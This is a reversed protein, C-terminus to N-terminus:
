EDYREPAVTISEGSYLDERSLRQGTRELSKGYLMVAGCDVSVAYYGTGATTSIGVIVGRKNSVGLRRTEANDIINVVEYFEFPIVLTYREM